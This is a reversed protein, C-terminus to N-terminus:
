RPTLGPETQEIGGFQELQQSVDTKFVHFIEAKGFYHLAEVACQAPINFNSGTRVDHPCTLM